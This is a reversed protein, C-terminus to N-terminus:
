CNVYNKLGKKKNRSVLDMSTGNKFYIISDKWIVHDINLLNVLCSRHCLYFDSGLENSLESLSKNTPISRNITHIICKRDVTDREIYLIDSLYIIYTAGNADFKIVKKQNVLELAKNLAKELDKNCNDYKSVFDLLMIQAKVAQYGLENHSTVLIIISDWDYRRIKRAIDIGSISDKIAIDLIYIKPSKKNILKEFSKTYSDFEYIKYEENNKMYMKNIIKAINSRFVEEDDCIVFEM